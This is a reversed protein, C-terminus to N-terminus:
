LRNPLRTIRRRLENANAVWPAVGADYVPLLRMCHDASCLARNCVCLGPTLRRWM